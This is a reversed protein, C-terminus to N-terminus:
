ELTSLNFKTSVTFIDNVVKEKICQQTQQLMQHYGKIIIVSRSAEM